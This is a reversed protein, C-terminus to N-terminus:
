VARNLGKVGLAGPGEQGASKARVGGLPAGDSILGRRPIQPQSPYLEARPCASCPHGPFSQRHGRQRGRGVELGAIEAM